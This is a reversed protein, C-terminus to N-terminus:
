FPRSSGNNWIYTPVCGTANCSTCYSRTRSQNDWASGQGSCKKCPGMQTVIYAGSVNDIMRVLDKVKITKTVDKLRKIGFQNKNYYSSYTYNAGIGTLTVADNVSAMSIVDPVFYSTNNLYVMAGQLSYARSQLADLENVPPPTYVLVPPKAKDSSVTKGWGYGPKPVGAPYVPAATNNQNALFADVTYQSISKIAARQAATLVGAAKMCLKVDEPKIKKSMLVNYFGYYDIEVMQIFKEGLLKEIQEDTYNLSRLAAYYAIIADAREDSNAAAAIKKQYDSEYPQPSISSSSSSASSVASAAGQYVKLHDIDVQMVNNVQFGIGAHNTNFPEYIAKHVEIGNIFFLVNDKRKEVRLVNTKNIGANIAASFVNATKDGWSGNVNKGYKFKGEPYIGFAYYSKGNDGLGWLLWYSGNTNSTGASNLFVKTEIAFDKSQDAALAPLGFWSSYNNSNKSTFRYNGNYLQGSSGDNDWVGWQRTNNDFNEEFLIAATTTNPKTAKAPEPVTTKAPEPAAAKSLDMLKGAKNIFGYKKNQYVIAWGESFSSMGEYQFPIITKGTKDIVGYKDNLSATSLGESFETLADYIMPIKLVGNEDIAGVKGLRNNVVEQVRLMGDTIEPFIDFLKWKFDTIQKGTYDFLAFSGLFAKNAALRGKLIKIDYYEVPLIIKGDRGILGKKENPYNGMSVVTFGNKIEHIHDYITPIIEKGTKDIVGWKGGQLGSFQEKVYAGKNVYALGDKFMTGDDYKEPIAVEGKTNVYSVMGNLKTRVMGLGDSFNNVKEYAFPVIQKGTKDIYGRKGNSNEVPIMGNVCKAGGLLILINYQFPIVTKGQMDIFGVKGNEKYAEAVGESFEGIKKYECPAILKGTKDVLGNLGNKTVIAVRDTFEDATYDDEYILPVAEKGNRDIYGATKGIYVPAMGEKFKGVRDYKFNSSQAKACYSIVSLLLLAYTRKM